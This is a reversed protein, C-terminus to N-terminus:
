TCKEDEVNDNDEIRSSCWTAPCDACTEPDACEAGREDCDSSHCSGCDGDCGTDNPDEDRLGGPGTWLMM